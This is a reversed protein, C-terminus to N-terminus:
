YCSVEIVFGEEDNIPYIYTIRHECFWPEEYYTAQGSLEWGQGEFEVEEASGNFSVVKCPGQLDISANIIDEITM